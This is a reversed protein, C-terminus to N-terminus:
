TLRILKNRVLTDVLVCTLTDMQDHRKEDTDLELKYHYSFVHFLEHMFVQMNLMKDHQDHITIVRAPWSVRGYEDESYVSDQTLEVTYPVGCVVISEPLKM